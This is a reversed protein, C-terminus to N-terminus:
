KIVSKNLFQNLPHLIKYGNVLKAVVEGSIWLENSISHTVAFSKHQIWKLMPDDSRFGKPASKLSEGVIEPFYKAFKKDNVLQTWVTPHDSIAQRIKTLMQPEPMYIGGGLFSADAEFHLYYGAHQSKRGGAAIFAGFNTKYPEKNKSFRIDRNIRFLCDKATLNKIDMDFKSIEDILLQVLQIFSERAEDYRERNAHFWEKNNNFKLDILFELVPTYNM